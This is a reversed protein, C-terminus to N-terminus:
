RGAAVAPARRIGLGSALAEDFSRRNPLGTLSDISREDRLQLRQERVGRMVDCLTFALLSWVFCEMVAHALATKLEGHATFAVGIRSAITLLVYVATRGRPHMMAVGCVLNLDLATYPAGPGSLLQLITAMLLGVYSM